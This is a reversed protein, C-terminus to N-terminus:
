RRFFGIIETVTQHQVATRNALGAARLTIAATQLIDAFGSFFGSPSHNVHQRFKKRRFPNKYVGPGVGQLIRDEKAAVKQDAVSASGTFIRGRHYFGGALQPVGNNHCRM